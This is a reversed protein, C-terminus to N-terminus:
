ICHCHSWRVYFDILKPVLGKAKSCVKDTELYNLLGAHSGKMFAGGAKVNGVKYSIVEFTLHYWKGHTRLVREPQHVESGLPLSKM